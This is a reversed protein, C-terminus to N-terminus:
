VAMTPSLPFYLDLSAPFNNVMECCLNFIPQDGTIFEESTQNNIFKFVYDKKDQLIKNHILIIFPLRLLYRIRKWAGNDFDANILCSLLNMYKPTRFLQHIMYFSSIKFGEEENIFSTDKELCRNYYPLFDNESSSNFSEEGEKIIKYIPCDHCITQNDNCVIQANNYMQFEMKDMWSNKILFKIIRGREDTNYRNKKHCILNPIVVSKIHMKICDNSFGKTQMWDCVLTIENCLPNPYQYFYSEQAIGEPASSFIRERRLKVEIKGDQKAWTRLYFRPVYHQSKTINTM